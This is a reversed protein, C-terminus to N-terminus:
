DSPEKSDNDRDIVCGTIRTIIMVALHPANPVQVLDVGRGKGQVGDNGVDVPLFSVRAIGYQARALTSLTTRKM